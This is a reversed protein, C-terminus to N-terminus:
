VCSVLEQRLAEPRKGRGPVNEQIQVHRDEQLEPRVEGGLKFWDELSLPSFSDINLNAEIDITNSQFNCSFRVVITVEPFSRYSCDSFTPTFM